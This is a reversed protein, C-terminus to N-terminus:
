RRGRRRYDDVMSQPVDREYCLPARGGPKSYASSPGCSKGARNTSYPCPCNGSYSAISQRILAARIQADSMESQAVAPAPMLAVLLLVAKWGRM